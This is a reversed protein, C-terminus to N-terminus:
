PGRLEARLPLQPHCASSPPCKRPQGRAGRIGQRGGKSGGTRVRLHVERLYVEGEEEM